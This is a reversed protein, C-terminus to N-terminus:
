LLESRCPHSPTRVEIHALFKRQKMDTWISGPSRRVEQGTPVLNKAPTLAAPANHKGGMEMQPRPKFIPTSRCQCTATSRKSKGLFVMIFCCPLKHELRSDPKPRESYFDSENEIAEAQQAWYQTILCSVDVTPSLVVLLVETFFTFCSSTATNARVSIIITNMGKPLPPKM